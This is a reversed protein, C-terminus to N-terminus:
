FDIKGIFRINNEDSIDYQMLRDKGVVILLNNRVIVDFASYGEFIKSKVPKVPDSIDFIVLGANSDCVFLKNKGMGLGKPAAMKLTNLLAPKRIDTIDYVRLENTIKTCRANLNTQTSLTIYALNSRAVIPDHQCVVNEFAQFYTTTSEKTPIGKDSLRFIYMNNASGILLLGDHHYLSEIDFGVDQKNVEVPNRANTVDYTNITTKNVIYLKQKVTIMTSYSGVQTGSNINNDNSDKTCALFLLTM